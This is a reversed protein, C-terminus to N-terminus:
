EDLAYAADLRSLVSKLALGEDPAAEGMVIGWVPRDGRGFPVRVLTGRPLTDLHAPLAYDFPRDIHFPADLVRVSVAPVRM